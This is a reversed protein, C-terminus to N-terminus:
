GIIDPNKQADQLEKIMNLHLHPNLRKWREGGPFVLRRLRKVCPILSQYYPTFNTEAAKLFDGEGNILGKKAEALEITNMYNWKEFRGGDRGKNPGDYHICIWFLVWFFSELDHMFCHNEGYLVGIAMFARTGTKGRAGSSRDRQKKIALDLDILFARWSLNDDDENVMLNRPSIDSQVLGAKDHLSMYGEICGALGGLLVAKSSSEYIPKGYDQVIVRRHVRNPPNSEVTPKPSSSSQTRKSPPPPTTTDVCDFPRKQGATSGQSKQGRQSRSRRGKVKSSGKNDNLAPINLGKRITLVDDEKGNICVTEHHYYRAVNKVGSKMAEQLLKGEETREPYQWSDKVVLPSQSEDAERHAKWCTTARGAICRARGIFKDIILREKVGDKEIKIYREFGITVITPDFGLQERSMLLFGLVTSVFQLGDKNIDYNESAIGGLRDFNWLRLFPGCLTFGLVFRRSDQAALVERAYRGLDYYSGSPRDYRPDNKLEGPVLIQRWHCRSNETANVVDVFGIDLKRQAISGQMPRHPQALPRRDIKLTPEHTEAMQVLEGIIKALWSLVDGEAAQEPWDRWGNNDNYLNTGKCKEFVARAVVDLHPIDGFYANFFGPIDTHLEGLEEKLVADIYDRHETSNAFSSTNRLWPTQQISSVPPSPPTAQSVTYILSFVAKWIDVDAAKQIVLQVLPRYYRYNFLDPRLHKLTVEALDSDINQDTIRSRLNFAADEGQLASLLKTIANRHLQVRKDTAGDDSISWSAHTREAEQLLGHLDSFSKTLPHKKIIATEDPSLEVM